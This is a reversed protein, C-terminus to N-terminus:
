HTKFDLERFINKQVCYMTRGSNLFFFGFLDKRNRPYVYTHISRYLSYLPDETSGHKQSKPCCFEHLEISSAVLDKSSYM